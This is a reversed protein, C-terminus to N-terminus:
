SLWWCSQWHVVCSGSSARHCSLPPFQVM